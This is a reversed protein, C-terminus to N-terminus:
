RWALPYAWAGVARGDVLAARSRSGLAITVLNAAEPLDNDEDAPVYELLLAMEGTALGADRLFRGRIVREPEDAGAPLLWLANDVGDAGGAVYLLGGDPHFFFTSITEGRAGASISVPVTSGDLALRHLMFENNATSSVYAVSRGDPAFQLHGAMGDPFADVTVESTILTATNQALAVLVLNAINKARGQPFTALVHEGDPLYYVQNIYADPLFAGGSRMYVHEAAEGERTVTFMRWQSGQECREGLSVVVAGGDPRADIAASRWDCDDAPTLDQLESVGTGDWWNIVAEDARGQPNTFFQVFYAGDALLDFAIVEELVAIEHGDAADLVRLNGEPFIGSVADAPYDLYAWRTGDPSFGARGRGNCTLALTDGWRDLTGPTGPELPVRYLGGSRPGIYAILYSGDRSFADAGCPFVRTGTGEDPVDSLNVPVERGPAHWFLTGLGVPRGPQGGVQWVLAEGAPSQVLAQAAGGSLIGTAAALVVALLASRRAMKQWNIM